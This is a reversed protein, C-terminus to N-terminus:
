TVTMGSESAEVHKHGPKIGCAVPPAHVIEPQREVTRAIVEAYSESFPLGPKETGVTSVCASIVM